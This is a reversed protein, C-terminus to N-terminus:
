EQVEQILEEMRQGLSKKGEEKHLVGIKIKDELEEKEEESGFKEIKEYEEVLMTKDDYWQWFEDIDGMRNQRAYTTTCPSLMEIFSFGENQIGERISNIPQSPRNVPWRAVYTAGSSKAMQSMNFPPEVNGYPATSAYKGEPTTPAVQGGTMGYIYNNVAVVTM